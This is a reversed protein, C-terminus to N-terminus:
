GAATPAGHTAAYRLFTGIASLRRAVTAPRAGTGEHADRYSTLVDSTAGLLDVDHERCWRAFQGLDSRYAARTNPSRLTALWAEIAREAAPARTAPRRDVVARGRSRNACPILM